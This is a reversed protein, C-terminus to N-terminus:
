LAVPSPQDMEFQGGKTDGKIEGGKIKPSENPADILGRSTHTRRSGMSCMIGKIQANKKEGHDREVYLLVYVSFFIHSTTQSLASPRSNPLLFM